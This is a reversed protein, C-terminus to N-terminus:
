THHANMCLYGEPLPLTYAICLKTQPLSKDHIDIPTVLCITYASQNTTIVISDYRCFMHIYHLSQLTVDHLAAYFTHICTAHINAHICTHLNTQDNAHLM